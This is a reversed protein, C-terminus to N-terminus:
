TVRWVPLTLHLPSFVKVQRWSPCTRRVWPTPASHHSILQSFRCPFSVINKAFSFSLFQENTNFGTPLIAQPLPPAVPFPFVTQSTRSLNWSLRTLAPSPGTHVTPCGPYAPPRLHEQCLFLDCALPLLHASSDVLSRVHRSGPM